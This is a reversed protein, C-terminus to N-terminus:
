ERAPRVAAVAMTAITESIKQAEAAGIETCRARRLYAQQAVVFALAQGLLAHAQTIVALEDDRRNQLSAVAGCIARHLPEIFRQFLVDFNRTPRLQEQVILLTRETQRGPSLITLAFAKMLQYLRHACETESRDVGARACDDGVQLHAALGIALEDAIAEIVAAYMGDKGGFYYPIASQNVGALEALVRTRAGEVGRAAFECLGTEILRERASEKSQATSENSL